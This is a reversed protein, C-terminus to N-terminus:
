SDKIDNILRLVFVSAISLWALSMGIIQFQHYKHVTFSFSIQVMLVMAASTLYLYINPQFKAAARYIFLQSCFFLFGLIAV